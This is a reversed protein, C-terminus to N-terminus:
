FFTLLHLAKSTYSRAPTQTFNLCLSTLLSAWSPKGIRQNEPPLFFFSPSFSCFTTLGTTHFPVLYMIKGSYREHGIVKHPNHPAWVHNNQSNVKRQISTHDRWQCVLRTTLFNNQFKCTFEWPKCRDNVKLAHVLRQTYAKLLFAERCCAMDIHIYLM